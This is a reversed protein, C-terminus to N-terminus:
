NLCVGLNLLRQILEDALTKRRNQILIKALTKSTNRWERALQRREIRIAEIRKEALEVAEAAVTSMENLTM